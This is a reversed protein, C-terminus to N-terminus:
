PGEARQRERPSPLSTSADDGLERSQGKISAAVLLCVVALSLQATLILIRISIARAPDAGLGLISAFAYYSGEAAGLQAPFVDGVTSGVIQVGQATLAASLTFAGGVARMVVAFQAAQALRGVVGCAIAAAVRRREPMKAAASEGEGAPAFRQALRPFRGQIWRALRQGRLVAFVLSGLVACALANGLIAVALATRAAGPASFLVAAIFISIVTNAILVAGQLRACVGVAFPVGVDDSLIAARTAEGAARGTPLLITSAYALVTSRVWTRKGVARVRDGLLFRLGVIDTAVFTMELLAVLPLWTGADRLVALVHAPGVRWVLYAVFALGAVLLLPRAARRLAAKRARPVGAHGGKSDTLM